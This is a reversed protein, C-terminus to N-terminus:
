DSNQGVDEAHASPRGPHSGNHLVNLTSLKRLVTVFRQPGLSCAGLNKRIPSMKYQPSRMDMDRNHRAKRLRKPSRDGGSGDRWQRQCLLFLLSPPRSRLLGGQKGLAAAAARERRRRQILWRRQTGWGAVAAAPGECEVAAAVPCRGRRRRQRQSEGEGDGSHAGSGMGITYIIPNRAFVRMNEIETQMSWVYIGTM